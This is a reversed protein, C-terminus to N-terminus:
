LAFMTRMGPWDFGMGSSDEGDQGVPFGSEEIGRLGPFGAQFKRFRKVEEWEEATCALTGDGAISGLHHQDVQSHLASKLAPLITPTSLGTYLLLPICLTLFVSFSIILNKRSWTSM